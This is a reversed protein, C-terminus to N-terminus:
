RTLTEKNDSFYSYMAECSIYQILSVGGGGWKIGLSRIIPPKNNKDERWTQKDTQKDTALKLMETVKSGYSISAEYKPHM